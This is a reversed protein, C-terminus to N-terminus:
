KGYIHVTYQRWVPGIYIYQLIELVVLEEIDAYYITEIGNKKAIDGIANSDWMATVAFYAHKIDGKARVQSTPTATQNIDLPRVTNSFLLGGFPVPRGVGPGPRGALCGPLVLLATMFFLFFVRRNM